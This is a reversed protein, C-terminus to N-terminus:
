RGFTLKVLVIVGGILAGLLLAGIYRKLLGTGETAWAAAGLGTLLAAGGFVDILRTPGFAMVALGVPIAIVGLLYAHGKARM